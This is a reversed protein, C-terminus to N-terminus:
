RLETVTLTVSVTRREGPAFTVHTGTLARARHLGSGPYSTAPEIGVVRARGFWPYDEGAGAEVWLWAHPLVAADWSLDARIGLRENVVGARGEVFGGLYGMSATREGPPPLDPLGGDRGDLPWPRKSGEVDGTADLEADDVYWGAAAEIRGGDVLDSSFAPHHSWMVDRPASGTHEVTETVTVADGDVEVRKDITFPVRVLRARMAVASDTAELVEHPTLCAEGHFGLAAGHEDVSSGGNPFITQWGGFYGEMFATVSGAATPPGGAPRVGWPTTWLLDLHGPRWRAALVDGGKAPLVDVELHDSRLRHVTWGRVDLIM